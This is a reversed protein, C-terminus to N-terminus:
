AGKRYADIEAAIDAETIEMAQPLTKTEKLLSRWKQIRQQRQVSDDQTGPLIMIFKARRGFWPRCSSPLRANVVLGDPTIDAEIELTKMLEQEEHNKYEICNSM